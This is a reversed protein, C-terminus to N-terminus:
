GMDSMEFERMMKYKFTDLLSNSSYTYIIDNVYLAFSSIM